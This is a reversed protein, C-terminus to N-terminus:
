DHSSGDSVRLGLRRLHASLAVLQREAHRRSFPDFPGLVVSQDDALILELRTTPRDPMLLGSVLQNFQCSRSPALWGLPRLELQEGDVVVRARAAHWALAPAVLLAAAVVLAARVPVERLLLLSGLAAAVLPILVLLRSPLDHHCYGLAYTRRSNM